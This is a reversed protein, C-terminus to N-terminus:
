PVTYNIHLKRKSPKQLKNQKRIEENTQLLMQKYPVFSIRMNHINLFFLSIDDTPSQM